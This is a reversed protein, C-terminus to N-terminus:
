SSPTIRNKKRVGGVLERRTVQDKKIRKEFGANKIPSGAGRMSTKVRRVADMM